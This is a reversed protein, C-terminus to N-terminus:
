YGDNFTCSLNQVRPKAEGNIIATQVNKYDDWQKKFENSFAVEMQGNLGLQKDVARITELVIDAFTAIENTFFNIDITGEQKLEGTLKALSEILGKTTNMFAITTQYKTKNNLSEDSDIEEMKILAVDIMHCLSNVKDVAISVGNNLMDRSKEIRNHTEALKVKVAEDKKFHNDIHRRISSPNINEVKVIEQEEPDQLSQLYKFIQNPNMGNISLEEIRNRFVSRCVKCQKVHVAPM